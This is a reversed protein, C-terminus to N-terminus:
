WLGCCEALSAKEWHSRTLLNHTVALSTLRGLFARKADATVVGERFTQQAVAQVVALTNKVRHNLEDVMLKLHTESQKRSSIDMFLTGIRKEEPLAFAFGEFHRGLSEAHGEFRESQGTSAVRGFIEFWYAELDPVLSRITKGEVNQLGTQREFAANVEV